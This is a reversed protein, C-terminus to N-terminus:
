KFVPTVATKQDRSKVFLIREGLGSRLVRNVFLTDDTLKIIKYTEDVDTLTLTDKKLEFYINPIILDGYSFQHRKRKSASEYFFEGMHMDRKFLWNVNDKSYDGFTEGYIVPVRDWFKKQKGCLLLLSDTAPLGGGVSASLHRCNSVLISIALIYTYIM